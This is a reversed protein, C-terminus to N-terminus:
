ASLASRQWTPLPATRPRQPGFLEQLRATMRGAEALTGIQDIHGDPRVLVLADRRVLRRLRSAQPVSLGDRLTGDAALTRVDLVHAEGAALGALEEVEDPIERSSGICFLLTHRLPDLAARLPLRRFARTEWVPRDPALAGPIWERGLARRGSTAEAVPYVTRLGALTPVLAAEPLRLASALRLTADRVLVAEPRRVLWAKTQLHAQRVVSKAVQSREAEYSDLVDSPSDGRWVLALKWALNHADAIGTNMGQGGAPSHAHAADGALFVRGQRSRAAHRAHVSFASVWTPDTLTLGGPGREDVLEQVRSLPVDERDLDAPASTFVRFRGGPLGVLVLIGKPSCYYYSADHQLAGGLDVDAVVFTNPYTEGDFGIGLLGRVTSGAGDAAIVHSFKQSFMEGEGDRLRVTVGEGDQELALLEIGRLVSGGARDLSQILLDEVDPQPLVVPRTRDNFRVTAIPNNSSFYRLSHVPLGREAIVPAGGLQSLIELTRPWVALAKSLTSPAPARDICVVDVDRRLLEITATLGVPGAGVM